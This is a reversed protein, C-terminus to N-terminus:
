SLAKLSQVPVRKTHTNPHQHMCAMTDVHFDSFLKSSATREATAEFPHFEAKCLLTSEWQAM